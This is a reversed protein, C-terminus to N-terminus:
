YKSAIENVAKQTKSLEDNLATIAQLGLLAKLPDSNINERVIKAANKQGGLNAIIDKHSNKFNSPIPMSYLTAIVKAYAGELGLLGELANGNTTKLNGFVTNLADSLGKTYISILRSDNTTIINLGSDTVAPKLSNYDFNKAAEALYDAAAKEPSKLDGSNEIGSSIISDGIARTAADTLNNQSLTDGSPPLEEPLNWDTENSGFQSDAFANPSPNKSAIILVAFTVSGALLAFAIIKKFLNM